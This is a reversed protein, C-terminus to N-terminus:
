RRPGPRLGDARLISAIATAKEKSVGRETRLWGAVMDNTPATSPDNPDYLKWFRHAAAELDGLAITHHTGWPWHIPNCNSPKIQNKDKAHNEFESLREVTWNIRSIIKKERMFIYRGFLIATASAMSMAAAISYIFFFARVNRISVESAVDAGRIGFSGILEYAKYLFFISTLLFITIPILFASFDIILEKHKKSINIM